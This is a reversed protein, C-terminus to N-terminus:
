HTLEETGRKQMRVTVRGTEGPALTVSASRGASGGSRVVPMEYNTHTVTYGQRGAPLTRVLALGRADSIARFDNEMWHRRQLWNMGPGHRFFDETNFIDEAFITSGNGGWLVNPWLGAEAGALPRGADDLVTVEFSAAAEMPLVIHQQGRHLPFLQPLRQSSTVGSPSPGQQSVFGECIGILEMRGPPLSEFTFTGDENVPRWAIWVPAESNGDHGEAFVRTCVRGHRVPRPLAEDLRASVRAGPRLELAFENTEGAKADFSVLDGFLPPGDAPLHVARLHGPGPAVRGSWLVPGARQWFGTGAPWMGSIDAHLNTVVKERTGIYGTLRVVGGRKLVVPNPRTSIRHTLRAVWYKLKEGYSANSPPSASVTRFPREACFDPHDVAFSIEATEL